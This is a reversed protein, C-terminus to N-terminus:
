KILYFTHYQSDVQYFHCVYIIAPPRPRHSSFRFRNNRTANNLSIILRYSLSVNTYIFTSIQHKKHICYYRWWCWSNIGRSQLVGCIYLVNLIEKDAENKTRNAMEKEGKWIKRENKIRRNTTHISTKCLHLVRAWRIFAVFSSWWCMMVWWKWWCWFMAAMIM